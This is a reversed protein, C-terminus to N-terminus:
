IGEAASSIDVELHKAAGLCALMLSRPDVSNEKLLIAPGSYSVQPEVRKVQESSLLTGGPCLESLAGEDAFHITGERRFDVKVGSEDQLVDVFAPYLRASAVSLPKLDEPTECDALMGAAAHSAERGPQNRDIVLVRAGHRRLSLALSMGIMGGGVIIADWTK